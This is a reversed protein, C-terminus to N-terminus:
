RGAERSRRIDRVVTVGFAVALAAGSGLATVTPTTFALGAGAAGAAAVTGLTPALPHARRETAPAATIGLAAWSEADSQEGIRQWDGSTPSTNPTTTM